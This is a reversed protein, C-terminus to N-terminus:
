NSCKSSRRWARATSWHLARTRVSSPFRYTTSADLAILIFERVKPELVGQECPVAGLREHAQVFDAILM